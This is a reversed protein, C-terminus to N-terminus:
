EEVESDKIANLLIYRLEVAEARQLHILRSLPFEPRLDLAIVGNGIHTAKM